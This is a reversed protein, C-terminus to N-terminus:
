SERRPQAGLTQELVERLSEPHFPKNLCARAGREVLLSLRRENRDSTIIVVPIDELLRDEAMKEVLEEGGMGPMNLDTFVLDIWHDRLVELAEKGNSAEFVEGMELGSMRTAKLIVKRSTRSDDVVLINYAM